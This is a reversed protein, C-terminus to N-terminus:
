EHHNAAESTDDRAALGMRVARLVRGVGRGRVGPRVVQQRRRARRGRRVVARSGDDAVGGMARRSVPRAHHHRHVRHGDDRSRRSRSHQSQRRAPADRRGRRREGLHEEGLVLGRARALRLLRAGRTARQGADASYRAGTGLIKAGEDYIAPEGASRVGHVYPGMAAAIRGLPPHQLDYSYQGTTLWQMGAALHAPEDVTGSFVRATSAVALAGALVMTWSLATWARAASLPPRGITGITTM